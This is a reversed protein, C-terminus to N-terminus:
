VDICIQKSKKFKNNINSVFPKYKDRLGSIEYIPNAYDPKAYDPQTHFQVGIHDLNKTTSQLTNFNINLYHTDDTEYIYIRNITIKISPSTNGDYMFYKWRANRSADKTPSFRAKYLNNGSIDKFLDFKILNDNKLKNRNKLLDYAKEIIEDLKSKQKETIFMDFKKDLTYGMHKYKNPVDHPDLIEEQIKNNIYEVLGGCNSKPLVFKLPNNFFRIMHCIINDNCTIGYTSVELHM